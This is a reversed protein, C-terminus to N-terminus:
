VVRACPSGFTQPDGSLKSPPNQPSSPPGVALFAQREAGPGHCEGATPSGSAEQGTAAREGFAEAPARLSRSRFLARSCRDGRMNRPTLRRCPGGRRGVPEPPRRGGRLEKPRQRSLFRPSPAGLEAIPEARFEPPLRIRRRPRRGAHVVHLMLNRTWWYTLLPLNTRVFQRLERSRFCNKPPRSEAFLGPMGETLPTARRARPAQLRPERARPLKEQGEGASARSNHREARRPHFCGRGLSLESPAAGGPM